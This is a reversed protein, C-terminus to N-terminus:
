KSEELGLQVLRRYLRPRTLGLLRAAKTKNGKARRLARSILETEIRQLFEDLVIKEEQKRPRAAAGAAHRFRAPLDVPRIEHAETAAHAERMVAALEDINEPWHYATLLDLAQLSVGGVQKEGSRNCEELFLQALLPLDELREALPPLQVSLTTLACALDARFRGERALESLDREATVLTRLSRPAKNLLELFYYQLEDGLCDVNTLLLTRPEARPQDSGLTEVAARLREATLVAGDLPILQGSKGGVARYHIAKAIHARGSGAPGVLQVNAGSAAAAAIQLRARNAAPSTGAIRDLDYRQQQERRFIRVQAHLLDASTATRQAVLEATEVNVPAVFVVVGVTGGRGTGLPVFRARRQLLRGDRSMCSVHGQSESGAFAAPPPCLGAALGPPTSEEHHSHYDVRRGTLEEATLGTWEALARNCHVITRRDDLVYIPDPAQQLLQEVAPLTSKTRAM